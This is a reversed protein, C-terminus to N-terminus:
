EILKLDYLFMGTSENTVYIATGKDDTIVEEIRWDGKVNYQKWNGIIEYYTPPMDIYLGDVNVQKGKVEISATSVLPQWCLLKGLPFSPIFDFSRVSYRGSQLEGEM